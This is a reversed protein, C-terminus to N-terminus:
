SVRGFNPKRDDKKLETNIIEANSVNKFCVMCVWMFITGDEREIGEDTLKKCFKCCGMSSRTSKEM